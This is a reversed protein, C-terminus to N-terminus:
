QGISAKWYDISSQAAKELKSTEVGDTSISPDESAIRIVEDVTPLKDTSIYYRFVIPNMGDMKLRENPGISLSNSTDSAYKPIRYGPKGRKDMNALIENYTKPRKDKKFQSEEGLALTTIVRRAKKTFTLEESSGTVFGMTKLRLIEKSTLVDPGISFVGEDKKIGNSWVKFLLEADRNSAQVFKKKSPSGDTIGPYNALFSYDMCTDSNGRAPDSITRIPLPM